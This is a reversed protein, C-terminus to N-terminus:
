APPFPLEGDLPDVDFGVITMSILTYYGLVGVLEVVAREGLVAKARDSVAESVARENLLQAAYAHVVEAEADAFQPAEGIRIAEIIAPSLGESAAIPAHVQWEYNARWYAAVTLIALESLRPPLTTGYRCFAGLSQARDALEASHLWIRLPAPVTARPGTVIADYVRRQDDDLNDADLDSVRM